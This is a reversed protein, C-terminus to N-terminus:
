AVPIWERLPPLGTVEKGRKVIWIHAREYSTRLMREEHSIGVRNISTLGEQQGNVGRTIDRLVPSIHCSHLVDFHRAECGSNTRDVIVGRRKNLVNAFHTCPSSVVMGCIIKVTLPNALDVGHRTCCDTSLVLQMSVTKTSRMRQILIAVWAKRIFSSLNAM